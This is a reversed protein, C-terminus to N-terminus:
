RSRSAPSSSPSPSPRACTTRPAAAGASAAASITGTSRASPWRCARSGRVPRGAVGGREADAGLVRGPGGLDEGHLEDAGDDRPRPVAHQLGSRGEERRGRDGNLADGENRFAYAENATLGEKLHEAITASSQSAGAGEDWVIPLADLASKARWWTDAVVAVTADNVKVVRRVGPRGAIKAEDYSVLKGGFM